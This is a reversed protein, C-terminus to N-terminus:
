RLQGKELVTLALPGAPYSPDGLFPRVRGTRPSLASLGHGGRLPRALDLPGSLLLADGRRGVVMVGYPSNTRAGQLPVLRAATGDVPVVALAPRADKWRVKDQVLMWLERGDASFVPASQGRAGPRALETLGGTAVDVVVTRRQPGPLENALGGGAAVAIRRSDPSWSFPGTRGSLLTRFDGTALDLVVIDHPTAPRNPRTRSLDFALWRGDPSFQLNSTTGFTGLRYERQQGTRLTLTRVRAPRQFTGGGALARGSPSIAPFANQAYPGRQQTVRGPLRRWGTGDADLVYADYVGSEITYAGRSGPPPPATVRQGTAYDFVVSDDWDLIQATTLGRTIPSAALTPVATSDTPPKPMARPLYGDTSTAASTLASAPALLGTADARAPAASTAPALLAAMLTAGALARM